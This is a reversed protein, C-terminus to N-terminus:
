PQYQYYQHIMGELLSVLNYNLADVTIHAQQYYPQREKLKQEVFQSLDEINDFGAILPREKKSVTLRSILAGSPLWLYVVLGSQLMFEMNNGYCPTGGGTSIIVDNKLSVERLIASEAHRFMTEGHKNFVDTVSMGFQQEIANDIDVFELELRHALRKGITTKGSGMFGVLFIRKM